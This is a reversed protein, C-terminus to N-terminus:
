KVASIFASYVDFRRYQPYRIRLKEYTSADIDNKYSPKIETKSFQSAKLFIEYDEYFLKNYFYVREGRVIEYAVQALEDVSVDLYHAKLMGYVEEVSYLLHPFDPLPGLNIFNCDDKYWFHSGESCSWIPGFDSMLVGGKKLALFIKNLMSSMEKVHEFCSISICVDFQETFDDTIDEAYMNYHLYDDKRMADTLLSDGKEYFAYKKFHDGWIPEQYSQGKDVCVWKQAGLFDFILEEPLNHGGIELVRKGKFNFRSSFKNISKIHHLDLKYKEAFYNVSEDNILVGEYLEPLLTSTDDYSDFLASSINASEHTSINCASIRQFIKRDIENIKENTKVVENNVVNIIDTTSDLNNKLSDYSVRLGSILHIDLELILRNM